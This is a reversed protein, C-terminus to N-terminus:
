TNLKKDMIFRATKVDDANIISPLLTPNERHIWELIKVSKGTNSPHSLTHSNIPFKGQQDVLFKIIDLAGVNFANRALNNFFSDETWKLTSNQLFKYMWGVFYLNGSSGFNLHKLVRDEPKYNKEDLIWEVFISSGLEVSSELLRQLLKEDSDKWFKQAMTLNGQEIISHCIRQREWDDISDKKSLLFPSRAITSSLPYGLKIGRCEKAYHEAFVSCDFDRNKYISDAFYYLAINFSLPKSCFGSFTEYSSVIGDM